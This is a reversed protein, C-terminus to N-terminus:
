YVIERFVPDVSKGWRREYAELMAEAATRGSDLVAEICALHIREDDGRANRISRAKLGESAIAAVERAIDLLKMRRFRAALATRPVETRLADREEATWGKVVDWAADLATQDYLLGVWLAPLGAVQPLLGADAGRMELFRKM